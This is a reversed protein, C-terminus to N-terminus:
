SGAAPAAQGARRTDVEHRMEAPRPCAGYLQRALTEAAAARAPDECRRSIAMLNYIWSAYQFGVGAPPLQGHCTLLLEHLGRYMALASDAKAASLKPSDTSDSRSIYRYVAAPCLAPIEGRLLAAVLARLQFEADQTYVRGPVFGLGEQLLFDRRYIASWMLGFWHLPTHAALYSCTSLPRHARGDHLQLRAEGKVIAPGGGAAAAALLQWAWGPEVEDDADVFAVYQGRAAALGANRAVSVGAHEQQLVRVRPEAAACAAAVQATADSSGDDVVIIEMSATQGACLSAVCAQLYAADNHAPIVVSLGPASGGGPPSPPSLGGEPVHQNM